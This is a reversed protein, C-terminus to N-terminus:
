TETPCGNSRAWELLQDHKNHNAWKIVRGDWPCGHHHLWKVANLRGYKAAYACTDASMEFEGQDFLWDLMNM